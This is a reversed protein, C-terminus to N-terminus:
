GALDAHRVYALPEWAVTNDGRPLTPRRRALEPVAQVAQLVAAQVSRGEAIVKAHDGLQDAGGYTFMSDLDLRVQVVVQLRSPKPERRTRNVRRVTM